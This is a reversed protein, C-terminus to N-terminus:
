LANTNYLCKKPCDDVCLNCLMCVEKNITWTKEARNMDIAQSPCRKECLGCFICSEKEFKIEGSSSAVKPAVAAKPVVKKEQVPVNFTDIVKSTGPSTYTNENILCKKPCTEVCANCQVCAMREITWTKQKKDVNIASAPCKKHCIGCLICDKEVISIHGRTIDHYERAIVPYMLTAPKKFLSRMVMKGMKFAVM